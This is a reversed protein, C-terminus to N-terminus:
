FLREKVRIVDGPQIHMGKKVKIEVYQDDPGRRRVEVRSSSGLPTVGGARAIADALTMEEEVRYEGPSAVHGNIRFASKPVVISDGGRLTQIPASSADKVAVIRSLDVSMRQLVGQEDARHIYIVNSGLESVGGARAILEFVTSNAEIPYRGPAAVEGLVSVRQSLSEAVTVVVHPNVLIEGAKLAAEIRRAAEAPSRGGVAVPGVLPMRVEGNDDV